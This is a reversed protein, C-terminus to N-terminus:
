ALNRIRLCPHYLGNISGAYFIQNDHNLAYRNFEVNRVIPIPFSNIWAYLGNFNSYILFGKYNHLEYFETVSSINTLTNNLLKFLGSKGGILIEDNVKEIDEFSFNTEIKEINLHKSIRYITGTRSIVILESGIKKARTIKDKILPKSAERKEIDLLTVSELSVLVIKDAFAILQRVEGNNPFSHYAELNNQKRNYKLITHDRCLYYDSGVKALEGNSYNAIKEGKFNFYNEVTNEAIVGSYTSIIRIQGDSYIHRVSKGKHVLRALSNINYELVTGNYCIFLKNNILAKTIFGNYPGPLINKIENYKVAYQKTVYSDHSWYYNDAFENKRIWSFRWAGQTIYKIQSNSYSYVSDGIRLYLDNGDTSINSVYSDISLSRYFLTDQANISSVLILLFLFMTRKLYILESFRSHNFHLM